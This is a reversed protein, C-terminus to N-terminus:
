LYVYIMDEVKRRLNELMKLYLSKQLQIHNLELLDNLEYIIKKRGNLNFFLLTENKLIMEGILKTQM